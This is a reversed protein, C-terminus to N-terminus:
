LQTGVFSLSQKSIGTSHFRFLKPQTLQQIIVLQSFDSKIQIYMSPMNFFLKRGYLQLSQDSGHLIASIFILINRQVSLILLASEVSLYRQIIRITGDIQISIHIYCGLNRSEVEKGNDVLNAGIVEIKRGVILIRLERQLYLGVEGAPRDVFHDSLNIHITQLEPCRIFLIEHFVHIHPSGPLVILILKFQSGLKQCCAYGPFKAVM